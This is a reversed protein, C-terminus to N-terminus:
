KVLLGGTKPPEGLKIIRVELFGENDTCNSETIFFSIYAEEEFYVNVPKFSNLGGYKLVESFDTTVIKFAVNHQPGADVGHGIGYKEDDEIDSIMLLYYGPSLKETQVPSGTCTSDPSAPLANEKADIKIKTIKLLGDFPDAASIGVGVSFLFSLTLITIFGSRIM